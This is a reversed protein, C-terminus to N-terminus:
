SVLRVLDGRCFLLALLEPTNGFIQINQSFCDFYKFRDFVLSFNYQQASIRASSLIRFAAVVFSSELTIEIHASSSM